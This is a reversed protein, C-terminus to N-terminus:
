VELLYNVTLLISNYGSLDVIHAHSNTVFFLDARKVFITQTHTYCVLFKIQIGLIKQM